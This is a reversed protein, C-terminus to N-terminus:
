HGSSLAKVVYFFQDGFFQESILAQGSSPADSNPANVTCVEGFTVDFITFIKKDLAVSLSTTYLSGNM